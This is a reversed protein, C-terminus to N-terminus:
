AFCHGANHRLRPRRKTSPSGQPPRGYQNAGPFPFFASAREGRLELSIIASCFGPLFPCRQKESAAKTLEEKLAASVGAKEKAAADNKLYADWFATTGTCIMKQFAADQADQDPDAAKRVRGSFIFHDGGNFIVLCTESRSM